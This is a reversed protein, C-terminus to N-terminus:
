VDLHRWIKRCRIATITEVSVGYRQSLAERFKGTRPHNRIERVQDETLRSNNNREGRRDRAPRDHDNM